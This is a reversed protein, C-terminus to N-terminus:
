ARAAGFARPTRGRLAVAQLLVAAASAAVFSVFTGAPVILVAVTACFAIFGVMGSALGRLFCVAGKAGEGRHAFVALVSGLVPLAALVGGIQPGLARVAIALLAVLATTIVMRKALGVRREVLAAPDDRHQASPLIALAGGLSVLAAAASIALGWHRGVAALAALALTAVWGGALSAGWGARRALRGYAAVFAGMAVLGLLTATAARKAAEAGSQQATILLVPGIVVPLASVVGGAQSGWRRSALTSAAVLAPALAVELFLRLM